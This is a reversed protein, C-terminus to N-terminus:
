WNAWYTRYQERFDAPAGGSRAGRVERWGAYRAWWLPRRNKIHYFAAHTAAQDNAMQGWSECRVPIAPDFGIPKFLFMIDACDPVDAWYNHVAAPAEIPVGM